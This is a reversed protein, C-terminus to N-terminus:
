QSYKKEIMEIRRNVYLVATDWWDYNGTFLLDSMKILKLSHGEFCKKTNVAEGFEPFSDDNTQTTRNSNYFDLLWSTSIADVERGSKPWFLVSCEYKYLKYKINALDSRLYYIHDDPTKDIVFGYDEFLFSFHSKILKEIGPDKM